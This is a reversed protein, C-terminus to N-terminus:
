FRECGPLYGKAYKRILRNPRGFIRECDRL